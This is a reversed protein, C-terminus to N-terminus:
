KVLAASIVKGLTIQDHVIESPLGVASAITKGVAGLTEAYPIDASGGSQGTRSDIATAAYDNGSRVVGGIVSSAVQKGMLVTCHHSGLHDRGMLAPRNLSRGFVNMMVFTVRDQMGAAALKQQISSIAAIGSLHQTTERALNPDSHNDGGFPIQLVTAPTVNMLILAIAATVQGDLNNATVGALSNLV